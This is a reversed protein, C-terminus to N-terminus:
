SPDGSGAATRMSILEAMQAITETQILDSVSLEIGFSRMTCGLIQTARLSDGGLDLVRDKIGIRGLQLVEM